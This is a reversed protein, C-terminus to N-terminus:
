NSAALAANLAYAARAGSAAAVAVSQVPTALDGAAYLGPVTTEGAPDVAVTGADTFDAGLVAALDSAPTLAPQIFVADREVPDRGDLVLRLVGDREELRDIGADLVDVDAAALADRQEAGVSPCALIVDDSLSTLLLAQHVAREGCGYVALRQNRVEWGHCYPCHFVHTGWLDTVGPLEPLGYRMGHALVLRRGTVRGGGALDLAFGGGAIQRASTAAITRLEVTPYVQLQERATRRLELPPTGDHGLFGRVQRSVAHAPADTDLVLVRRRMRGLVLAANLGAPGAGVILVDYMDHQHDPIM